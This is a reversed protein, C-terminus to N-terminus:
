KIYVLKSTVEGRPTQNVRDVLLSGGEGLRYRWVTIRPGTQGQRGGAQTQQFELIGEKWTATTTVEGGFQNTNSHPQGDPIVEMVMEREGRPSSGTWRITIKGSEQTIRLEAAEAAGGGRGQGGPRSGTPAIESREPVLKWTGSLDPRQAQVATALLLTLAVSLGLPPIRSISM